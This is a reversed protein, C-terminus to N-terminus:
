ARDARCTRAHRAKEWILCCNSRLRRYFIDQLQDFEPRTAIDAYFSIWATATERNFLRDMFNSSVIASIRERPSAASRMNQVAQGM